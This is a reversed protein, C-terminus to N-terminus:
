RSLDRRPVPSGVLERGANLLNCVAKRLTYRPEWGLQGLRRNSVWQEHMPSRAAPAPHSRVEIPTVRAKDLFLKVVDAIRTSVSSAVNYSEGPKAFLVLHWLARACDTVHIFDRVPSLDGLHLVPEQEGREIALIQRALTGCLLKTRMGPGVPNSIRAIIVSGGAQFHHIAHREAAHKCQAYAGLPNPSYDEDVPCAVTGGYGYVGTTSGVIILAEFCCIRVAELLQATAQENDRTLESVSGDIRGALHIIVDPRCERLLEVVGDIRGALDCETRGISRVVVEPMRGQLYAQLHLGIFGTGGTILVRM